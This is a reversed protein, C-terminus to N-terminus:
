NIRESISRKKEQLHEEMIQPKNELWSNFFSDVGVTIEVAMSLKILSKALAGHVIETNQIALGVGINQIALGVGINQIALGVRIRLYVM